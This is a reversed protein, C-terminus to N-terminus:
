SKKHLKKLVNLPLTVHSREEEPLKDWNSEGKRLLALQTKDSLKPISTIFKEIESTHLGSKRVRDSLSCIISYAWRHRKKIYGRNKQHHSIKSYLFALASFLFSEGDNTPRNAAQPSYIASRSEAADALVALCRLSQRIDLAGSKLYSPPSRGIGPNMQDEIFWGLPIGDNKVRFIYGAKTLQQAARTAEAVELDNLLPHSIMGRRGSIERAEQPSSFGFLKLIETSHYVINKLDDLDNKSIKTRSLHIKIAVAIASDVSRKFADIRGGQIFIKENRCANMLEDHRPGTLGQIVSRIAYSNIILM